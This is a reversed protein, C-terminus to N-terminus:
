KVVYVDEHPRQMHYNERAEKEITYPDSALRRNLQRYHELSDKETKIEQRLNEAIQEYHYTTQISTDTFFLIYALMCVIAILSFNMLYRVCWQGFTRKRYSTQNM